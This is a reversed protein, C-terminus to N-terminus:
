LYRVKQRSPQRSSPKSSPKAAPKAKPKAEPSADPVAGSKGAAPSSGGASDGKGAASGPLAPLALRVGVASAGVAIGVLCDLLHNDPKNPRLRFENVTRGRGYTQTATEAAIHDGIMRHTAPPARFLSLSGSAAPPALLRKHIFTKWHNADYTIHRSGAKAPPM